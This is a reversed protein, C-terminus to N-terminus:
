ILIIALRRKFLQGWCPLGPMREADAPQKREVTLAAHALGTNPDVM